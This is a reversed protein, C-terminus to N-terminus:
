FRPKKCFDPNGSIRNKNMSKGLIEWGMSKGGWPNQIKPSAAPAASLFWSQVGVPIGLDNWPSRGWGVGLFITMRAIMRDQNKDAAGAAEGFIWFWHPPFDMPHSIRPFCISLDLIKPFGSKVLFDLNSFLNATKWLTKFTNQIKKLTTANVKRHPELRPVGPISKEFPVETKSKVCYQSFLLCLISFITSKLSFWLETLCFIPSGPGLDIRLIKDAGDQWTLVGQIAM